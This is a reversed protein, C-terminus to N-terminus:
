TAGCGRNPFTIQICVFRKRRAEAPDTKFWATIYYLLEWSKVTSETSPWVTNRPWGKHTQELIFIVIALGVWLVETTPYLPLGCRTTTTSEMSYLRLIETGIARSSETHERWSCLLTTTSVWNFNERDTALVNGCRWYSIALLYEEQKHKELEEWSHRYCTEEVLLLM